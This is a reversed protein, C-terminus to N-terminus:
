LSSFMLDLAQIILLMSDLYDILVHEVSFSFMCSIHLLYFKRGLAVHGVISLYIGFVKVNNECIYHSAM